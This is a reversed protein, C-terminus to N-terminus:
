LEDCAHKNFISEIGCIVIVPVTAIAEVPKPMERIHRISLVDQFLLDRRSGSPTALELKLNSDTVGVLRGFVTNRNKLQVMVKSGHHIEKSARTAHTGARLSPDIGLYVSAGPM